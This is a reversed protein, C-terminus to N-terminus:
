VVSSICWKIISKIVSITITQYCLFVEPTCAPNSQHGQGDWADRVGAIAIFPYNRVFSESSAWAQVTSEATSNQPTSVPQQFGHNPYGEWPTPNLKWLCIWCLYQHQQLLVAVVHRHIQQFFFRKIYQCSVIASSLIFVNAMKKTLNKEKLAFIKRNQM